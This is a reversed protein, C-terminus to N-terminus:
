KPEGEMNAIARHQNRYGDHIAQILAFQFKNLLVSQWLAGHIYDNGEEVALLEIAENTASAMTSLQDLADGLPIGARVSFLPEGGCEVPYFDYQATVAQKPANM